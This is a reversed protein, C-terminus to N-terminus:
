LKWCRCKMSILGYMMVGDIEVGCNTQQLGISSEQSVELEEVVFVFCFLSSRPQIYALAGADLTRHEM